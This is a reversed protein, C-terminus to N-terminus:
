GLRALQGHIGALDQAIEPRAGVAADRAADVGERGIAALDVDSDSRGRDVLDHADVHRDHAIAPAHQFLHDADPARFGILRAGLGQRRPPLLEALTPPDAREVEIVGSVY